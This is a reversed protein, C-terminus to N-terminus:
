VGEFSYVDIELKVNVPPELEPDTVIRQIHTLSAPDVAVADADTRGSRADKGGATQRATLTDSTKRLEVEAVVVFLDLASLRNLVEIFASPRTVFEFSFRQKSFYEGANALAASPAQQRDSGEDDRRRRRRTTSGTDMAQATDGGDFMERTVTRLEMINAAYLETCIKEIVALQLTLRDVHEQEPLSDSQGLYRDFGFYSNPGVIRGNVAGPHASLDRVSEQLVQKFGAPTKKDIVLDGKHLLNSATVLWGELVKQDERVRNINADSPFVKARYIHQLDEYNMNREEAADNKVSVARLLLWGAAVCMAAMLGGCVIMVIQHRKM